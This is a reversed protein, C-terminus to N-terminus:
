NSIIKLLWFSIEPFAIILILAALQLVVYPIVGKYLQITTVGPPAVGKL